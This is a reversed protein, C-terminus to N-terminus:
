KNEDDEETEKNIEQEDITFIPDYQNCSEPFCECVDTRAAWCNWCKVTM